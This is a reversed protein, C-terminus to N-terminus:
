IEDGERSFVSPFSFSFFIDVRVWHSFDRLCSPKAPPSLLLRSIPMTRLTPSHAHAVLQPMRTNLAPKVLASASAAGLGAMNEGKPCSMTNTQPQRKRRGPERLIRRGGHPRHKRELLQTVHRAKNVPVACLIVVLLEFPGLSDEAPLHRGVRSGEERGDEVVGVLDFEPTLLSRLAEAVLLHDDALLVRPRRAATM